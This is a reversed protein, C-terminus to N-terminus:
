VLFITFSTKKVLHSQSVTTELSQAGVLFSLCKLSKFKTNIIFKFSIRIFAPQHTVIKAVHRPDFNKPFVTRLSFSLLKQIKNSPFLIKKVVQIKGLV